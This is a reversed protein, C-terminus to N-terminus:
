KTEPKLEFTHNILRFGPRDFEFRAKKGKRGSKAKCSYQLWLSCIRHWHDVADSRQTSLEPAVNCFVSLPQGSRGAQENQALAPSAFAMAVVFAAALALMWIKMVVNM